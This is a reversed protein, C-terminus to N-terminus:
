IHTNTYATKEAAKIAGLAFVDLSSAQHILTLSEGNCAFTVEHRGMNDGLRLSHTEVSRFSGLNNAIMAALDKATGSPADKKGKRHTETLACDWNLKRSVTQCLKYLMDVGEAFNSKQIVTVEKSLDDLLALQGGNLGTAGSILPCNHKRCFQVVDNVAEATAFNIVADVRALANQEYNKDIQWVNHNRKQALEVAKSGVRGKAGFVAINM